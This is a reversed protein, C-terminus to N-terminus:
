APEPRDVVGPLPEPRGWFRRAPSVLAMALFLGSLLLQPYIAMLFRPTSLNIMSIGIMSVHCTAAFFAALMLYQGPPTDGLRPQVLFVLLVVSLLLSILGALMFAPYVVIASASAPPHLVVENFLRAFPPNALSDVYRNVARAAPPFTLAKVSWQGITHILTLRLYGPIDNIIIQRGLEIKLDAAPIGLQAATAAVEDNLTQFQGVAEYFATLVPWAVVSPLGDLFEHAPRFTRYLQRALATLAAAHPGTFVMDERVLMSAKGMMVYHTVSASAGGHALRYVLRESLAGAALPVILAVALLVASAQRQHWKLWVSVVVMPVLVLAAPRIGISLGVCLGAWALHGARGARLYDIWFALGVVLVTFYLSETLITAYFSSFYTNAAMLVVFLVVLGRSMGARLLAALLVPLALSFLLLQIVTVQQLGFGLSRLVQLFLPYLATRTPDFNIYGGSDPESLPFYSPLAFTILASSLACFGLFLARQRPTLAVNSFFDNM